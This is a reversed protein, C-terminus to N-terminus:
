SNKAWYMRLYGHMWGTLAMQKQAANWLPDHTEANELQKERYFFKLPDKAHIRLTQDAWPESANFSDDHPNFRVFNIALERRVIVEELFAKRDEAPV